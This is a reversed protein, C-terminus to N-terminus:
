FKRYIDNAELGNNKVQKKWRSNAIRNFLSRSIINADSYLDGVSQAKVVAESFLKLSKGIDRVPGKGTPIKNIMMGTMEGAGIALGGCYKYGCATAWNNVITLLNVIQKCEYFGMNAMAYINKQSGKDVKYLEEMLKVVRSPVGDVYLPMAFVITKARKLISILEDMKHEYSVLNYKEMPKGGLEIVKNLFENSNSKEGRYSCNLLVIGDSDTETSPEAILSKGEQYEIKNLNAHLNTCVAKVYRQSDKKDKETINEGYFIVNINLPEEYRKGHHSEDDKTHIFPLVYGISRDLVNKVFSSFGGWTYRSIILVEDSHALTEPMNEYSDKIVCRGPEKVWCGFCGVCSKIKGNDSIVKYDSYQDKVKDWEETSLDHILVKM